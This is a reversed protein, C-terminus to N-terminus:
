VPGDEGREFAPGLRAMGRMQRERRAEADGIDSIQNGFVFIVGRTDCCITYREGIEAIEENPDM